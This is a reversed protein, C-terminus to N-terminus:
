VQVALLVTLGATPCVKVHVGGAIHEPVGFAPIDVIEAGPPQAFAVNLRPAEPKDESVPRVKWHCDEVSPPVEHFLM